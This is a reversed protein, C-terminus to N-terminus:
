SPQELGRIFGRPAPNLFDHALRSGIITLKYFPGQLSADIAQRYWIEVLGCRWLHRTSKHQWSLLSIPTVIGGRQALQRMVVIQLNSLRERVTM